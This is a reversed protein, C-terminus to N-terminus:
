KGTLLLLTISLVRTVIVVSKIVRCEKMSLSQREYFTCIQTSLFTLPILVLNFCLMLIVYQWWPATWHQVVLKQPLSMNRLECNHQPSASMWAVLGESEFVIHRFTSYYEGWPVIRFMSLGHSSLNSNRLPTLLTGQLNQQNHKKNKNLFKLHMKVWFEQSIKVKKVGIKSSELWWCM